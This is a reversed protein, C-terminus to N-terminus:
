EAKVKRNWCCYQLARGAAAQIAWQWLLLAPMLVVALAVLGAVRAERPALLTYWHWAAQARQLMTSRPYPSVVTRLLQTATPPQSRGLVALFAGVRACYAVHEAEVPLTSTADLQTADRCLSDPEAHLRAVIAQARSVSAALWRLPSATWLAIARVAGTWPRVATNNALWSQAQPASGVVTAAATRLSHWTSPGTHVLTQSASRQVFYTPLWTSPQWWAPYARAFGLQWAPNCSDARLLEGVANDWTVGAAVAAELPDAADSADLLARVASSEVAQLGRLVTCTEAGSRQVTALGWVTRAPISVRGLSAPGAWAVPATGTPTGLELVPWGGPSFKGDDGSLGAGGAHVGALAEPALHPLLATMTAEHEPQAAPTLWAGQSVHIVAKVKAHQQPQFQHASSPAAHLADSSVVATVDGLQLWPIRAAEAPGNTAPEPSLGLQVIPVRLQAGGAQQPVAAGAAGHADVLVDPSVGQVDAWVAEACDLDDTACASFAVHAVEPSVKHLEVSGLVPGHTIGPAPCNDTYLVLESGADSLVHAPIDWAAGCSPQGLQAARESCQWSVQWTHGTGPIVACATQHVAHSTLAHIIHHGYVNLSHRLIVGEAAEHLDQASVTAIACIITLTPLVITRTTM